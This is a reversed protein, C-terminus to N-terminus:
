KVEEKQVISIPFVIGEKIQEASRLSKGLEEVRRALYRIDEDDYDKDDERSSKRRYEMEDKLSKSIEKRMDLVAKFLETIAKVREQFWISSRNDLKEPLLNDIKMKIKEIDTIMVVLADRQQKYEVLLGNIIEQESSM